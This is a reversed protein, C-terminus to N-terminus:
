SEARGICPARTLDRAPSSLDWMGSPTALFFFIKWFTLHSIDTFQKTWPRAHGLSDDTSDLM